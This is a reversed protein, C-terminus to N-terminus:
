VLRNHQSCPANRTVTILEATDHRLTVLGPAARTLGVRQFGLAGGTAGAEPSQRDRLALTLAGSDSNHINFSM